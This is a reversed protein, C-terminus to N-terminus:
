WTQRRGRRGDCGSGRGRGNRSAKTGDDHDFLNSRVMGRGKKGGKKGNGKGNWVMGKGTGKHEKGKGKRPECGGKETRSGKGVKQKKEWREQREWERFDKSFEGRQKEDASRGIGHTEELGPVNELLWNKLLQGQGQCKGALQLCGRGNSDEITCDANRTVLMQAVDAIGSSCAFHLPTSGQYGNIRNTTRTRTSARPTTRTSSTTRTRTRPQQLDLLHTPIGHGPLVRARSCLQVCRVLDTPGAASLM